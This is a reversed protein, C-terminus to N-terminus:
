CFECVNPKKKSSKKTSSKKKASKKAKKSKAMSKVEKEYISFWFM